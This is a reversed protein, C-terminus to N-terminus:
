PDKKGDSIQAMCDPYNEYLITYEEFVEGDELFMVFQSYLGEPVNQAASHFVVHGQTRLRDALAQIQIESRYDGDIEVAFSGVDDM